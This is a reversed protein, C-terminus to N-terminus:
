SITFVYGILLAAGALLMALSFGTAVFSVKGWRRIWPTGCPPEVMGLGRVIAGLRLRAAIDFSVYACLLGVSSLFASGALTFWAAHLFPRANDLAMETGTPLLNTISFALFALSATVVYYPVKVWESYWDRAAQFEDTSVLLSTENSASGLNELM